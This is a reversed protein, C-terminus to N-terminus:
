QPSSATRGFILSCNSGGFGFSNSLVREIRRPRASVVLDIPFAVDTAATGVNGPAVQHELALDCILAEIAGAAGLCHGSAGKTSSCPVGGGFTRAIMTAEVADNAETGTGHLNVYDIDAATLGASALADAVAREAGLGEPHPSSMHYGDSSEGAGLLASAGDGDRVLLAFAAGEGISIGARERAFPRAPAPSLLELSKFGYLTSYCLSDAGGVVAADALGAAIFRAAVAFVKASSACAASVCLRPGELGLAAAIFESVSGLDHRKGFRESTLQDARGDRFLTETDLIGSTSTGVFVGIRNAGYRAVAAAVQERFDDQALALWTLRHNRCDWPSLAAPLPEDEIGAVRGVYAAIDAATDGFRNPELGCAGAFIAEAIQRRGRGLSCVGTFAAITQPFLRQRLQDRESASM